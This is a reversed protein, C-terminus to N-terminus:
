SRARPVTTSHSFWEDMYPLVVEIAPPERGRLISFYDRCGLFYTLHEFVSSGIFDRLCYWWFINTGFSSPILWRNNFKSSSTRNQAVHDCKRERKWKIIEENWTRKIHITIQATTQHKMQTSLVGMYHCGGVCLRTISCKTMIDCIKIIWITVTFQKHPGEWRASRARAYGDVNKKKQYIPFLPFILYIGV